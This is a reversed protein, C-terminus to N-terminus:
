TALCGCSHTLPWNYKLEKEHGKMFFVNVHAASSFGSERRLSKNFMAFCIMYSRRCSSIWSIMIRSIPLCFDGQTSSFGDAHGSSGGVEWCQAWSARARWRRIDGGLNEISNLSTLFKLSKRLCGVSNLSASISVSVSLGPWFHVQTTFSWTTFVYHRTTHWSLSGLWKLWSFNVYSCAGTCFDNQVIFEANCLLSGTSHCATHNLHTWRFDWWM